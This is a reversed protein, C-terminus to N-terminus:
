SRNQIDHIFERRTYEVRLAAWRTLLSCLQRKKETTGQSSALRKTLDNAHLDNIFSRFEYPRQQALRQVHEYLSTSRPDTTM